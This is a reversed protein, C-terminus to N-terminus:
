NARRRHRPKAVGCDVAAVVREVKPLGDEGASVEVAYAVYTRFCQHVAVGRARGAAVPTDWGVKEVAMNLVALHRPQKELLTRWVALPDKGAEIDLFVETSYGTHNSAVSRWWLTSVGVEQPHASIRINPIAYPLSPAGNVMREDFGEKLSLRM